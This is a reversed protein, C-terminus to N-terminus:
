SSSAGSREIWTVMAPLLTLNVATGLALTAAVLMGFTATPIFESTSLVGFGVVLAVTALLVPVGINGAAHISSARSDHGRRRCRQYGALFHVSGDISLGISVAAIMAAGMNIKGGCIGVLALVLFIPLLNPILAATALRISSTALCLLIWVLLGSAFFCRWQDGVLQSVLRAMVVYYGTVQARDLEGTTTKWTDTSVHEAVRREVEEILAEKHESDLQERSRLMIRLKRHGSNAPTLLARFFVPMTLQMASLRATPSILQMLAARKAVQEADALSLVKTLRAGNIDIERLADELKRVQDLYESTLEMPADLSVDWVGAGGFHSEVEEYAQVVPSGPRFNNLFSTETKARGIGLVAIVVSIGAIVLCSKQNRISWQSLMLCRRRLRRSLTQQWRQLAGGFRLGPLMMTAPAFLLVSICVAVAAIAIMLGFQRVPLIRSGYLAAFGAADTACTLVIPLILLSLARITSQQQPSGRSRAIRFRVGLHLAAAVAIVTVIATLITSVLSLHIGMWVMMAKTVVVSWAIMVSTLLVFRLDTLSVVVVISLLAITLTALRAGDREILTFGDHVLVPEGVIAASTIMGVGGDSSNSEQPLELAIQRLQRITEPPHDPDLMAVVAARSHDRSHTYGSFLEDFGSAVTNKQFLAPVSSILSTPQVKEVARNLVAPSLVGDVGRVQEVRLSLAENRRLGAATMFDPDQYVLMVVSNGGFSEQLERYAVITPDAPKFMAGISRNFELRRSAPYAICGVVLGLLALVIRYRVVQKSVAVPWRAQTPHGIM